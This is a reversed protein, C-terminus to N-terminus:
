FTEQQLQLRGQFLAKNTVACNVQGLIGRCYALPSSKSRPRRQPDSSPVRDPHGQLELPAKRRNTTWTVKCIGRRSLVPRAPHNNELSEWTQMEPILFVLNLIHNFHRTSM